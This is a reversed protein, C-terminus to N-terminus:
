AAKKDNGKRKALAFLKAEVKVLALVSPKLEKPVKKYQKWNLHLLESRSVCILNELCCNLQDSDKFMIVKGKPVPGNAKEWIVVHKQKYRTAAGTYPNKESVKVLVFGDKSCIRESGLPRTNAPMNGKRFTGSNRKMVGKTGANWPRHGIKFFGCRGNSLGHNKVFSTIQRLTKNASFRRNFLYTM